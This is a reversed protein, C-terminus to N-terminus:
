AKTIFEDLNMIANAVVTLTALKIDKKGTMKVAAEPANEFHDLAQEYLLQLDHLKATDIERAMALRYGAKIQEGVKEPAAEAMREALAHAAEIYVPDNLTILAQLPTNTDIRRTVCFERSPSDFIIMSPYPSSRRWYTYLARRHKDEGKSTKWELGSYVVQWLGEPQEPMVSPGYMKDSLLGSVALAQDRVQEASLRIRPGRALLRNDADVALLEPTARSSQRYTASMVIQKLQKKLSWKHEHIFQQALWDLLEPHSPAFGQSGFDEITEVIGTGFLQAWLRNVMVRATLPNDKSVLWKALGLRNEPAGELMANWAEPVGPKVEKGHMMWNGREFVHTKRQYDDALEVMVPTSIFEQSNLLSFLKEEAERYGPQDQGPLDEHFLIWEISCVYEKQGPGKFVFYLDHKGSLPKIPIAITEFKGGRESKKIHWDAVLEGKLSDMRIEVKGTSKDARYSVLMRTKGNLPVNRIRAHGGRELSLHKADGVLLGKVIQDFSHANIKPV